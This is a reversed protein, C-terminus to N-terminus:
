IRSIGVVFSCLVCVIMGTGWAGIISGKMRTLSSGDKFRETKSAWKWKGLDIMIATVAGVCAIAITFVATTIAFFLFSSLLASVITLVSFGIMFYILSREKNRESVSPRGSFKM